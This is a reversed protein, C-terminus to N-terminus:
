NKFNVSSAMEKLEDLDNGSVIVMEDGSTFLFGDSVKCVAYDYTFKSPLEFVHLGDAESTEESGNFLKSMANHADTYNDESFIVYDICLDLSEDKWQPHTKEPDSAVENISSSFNGGTLTFVTGAPIVTYKEFDANSPTDMTFNGFDEETLTAASVTLMACFLILISTAFIKKNM